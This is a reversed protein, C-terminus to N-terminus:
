DSHSQSSDKGDSSSTTEGDGNTGAQTDAAATSSASDSEEEDDTSASSSTEDSTSSVPHISTDSRMGLSIASQQRKGMTFSANSDSEDGSSSVPRRSHSAGTAFEAESDSDSDASSCASSSEAAPSSYDTARRSVGKGNALESGDDEDDSSESEGESSSSGEFVVTRNKKKFLHGNPRVGNTSVPNAPKESTASQPESKAERSSISAGETSSTSPTVAWLLLEARRRRSLWQQYVPDDEDAKRQEDDLHDKLSRKFRRVADDHYAKRTNPDEMHGLNSDQEDWPPEKPGEKELADQCQNVLRLRAQRSGLGHVYSALAINLSSPIEDTSLIHRLIWVERNKNFKWSSRSSRYLNLYELADKSKRPSASPKKSSITSKEVKKQADSVIKRAEKADNEAAKQEYYAYDDQEWDTILEKGGDELKTEATFSVKKKLRGNPDKPFADSPLALKGNSHSSNDAQFELRRKKALPEALRGKVKPALHTDPSSRKLTSQSIRNTSSIVDNTDKANKLKLGLRKWAPIRDQHSLDSSWNCVSYVPPVVMININSSISAL